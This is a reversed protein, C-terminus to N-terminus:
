PNHYSSANPFTTIQSYDVGVPGVHNVVFDLMVWINRKHCADVFATLDNSTGFNENVDFFDAAWYGHYAGVNDINKVTPTIWIADFGMDVIYDLRQIMAQYTGGLYVNVNCTQINNCATASNTAFRDTLLQYIKRGRWQEPTKLNNTAASGHRMEVVRRPATILADATAVTLVIGVLAVLLVSPRM